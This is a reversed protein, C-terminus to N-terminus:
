STPRSIASQGHCIVVGLRLSQDLLLPALQKEQRGFALMEVWDLGGKRFNFPMYPGAVRCRNSTKADLAHECPLNADGIM